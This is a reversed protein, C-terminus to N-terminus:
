GPGGQSALDSVPVYPNGTEGLLRILRRLLDPLDWDGNLVRYIHSGDIMAFNPAKGQVLAAQAGATYGSVSIFLGRTFISKGEIKGRFVLLLDVGIPDRTWKAELLYTEGDLIFSGDIQEGIVRISGRPELAFLDFLRNLLSELARGAAQRDELAGLQMFEALLGPLTADIERRRLVDPSTTAPQPTAGDPVADARRSVTTRQDAAVIKGADDMALGSFALVEDLHERMTAWGDVRGVWRVPAMASQIFAGVHNGSRDQAQRKALADFLRHRKTSVDSDAIGSQALLQGIQGGTLGAQTDGLVDCIAQLNALDFVPIAVCVLYGNCPVV